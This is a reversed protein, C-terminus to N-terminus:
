LAIPKTHHYEKRRDNMKRRVVRRHNKKMLTDNPDPTQDFEHLAKALPLGMFLSVLLAIPVIELIEMM